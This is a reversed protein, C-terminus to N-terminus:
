YSGRRDTGVRALINKPYACGLARHDGLRQRTTPAHAGSPSRSHPTARMSNRASPPAQLAIPRSGNRSQPSPVSSRWARRSRPTPARRERRRAWGTELRRDGRRAAVATLPRSSPRCQALSPLPPTPLGMGQTPAQGAVRRVSTTGACARPAAGRPNSVPSAFASVEDAEVDSGAPSSSSDELAPEGGPGWLEDLDEPHERRELQWNFHEGRQSKALKHQRFDPTTYLENLANLTSSKDANFQAPTMRNAVYVPPAKEKRTKLTEKLAIVTGTLLLGIVGYLGLLVWTTVLSASFGIGLRGAILRMLAFEPDVRELMKEFHSTLLVHVLIARTPGWYCLGAWAASFAAPWILLRLRRLLREFARSRAAVKAM